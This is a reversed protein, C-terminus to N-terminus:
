YKRLIEWRVGLDDILPSVQPSAADTCTLPPISLGGAAAVLNGSTWRLSARRVLAGCRTGAPWSRRLACRSRRAPALDLRGRSTPAPECAPPTLGGPLPGPAWYVVARRRCGTAAPDTRLAGPGVDLGM